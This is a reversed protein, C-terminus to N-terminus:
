YAEAIDANKEIDVALSSPTLLKQIKGLIYDVIVALLATPIAGAFIIAMDVLAIGTFILNGLGGGGVLFVLAATGVNIVLSTRIGAIIVKMALPLEIKFLIQTNTMGMGKGAELM